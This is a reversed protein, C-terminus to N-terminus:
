VSVCQQEKFWNVTDILGEHLPVQPEWGLAYAKTTDVERHPIAIPREANYVIEAEHGAARLIMEAVDSVPYSAGYGINVVDVPFPSALMEVCGRALDTVHLFDRTEEGTGWVEFPDDEALAKRILSPIVHQSKDHRGYVATPRVRVIRMDSEAAVFDALKEFYRYMEGYGFYASHTPGDLAEDESMPHDGEPYVTSSSCLLVREVGQKWCAHLVRSTLAMNTAIASMMSVPSAGASGVAGAFHFVCDRDAVAEMCHDELTFDFLKHPAYSVRAGHRLLEQTVHQGCFGTGGTVLVKKNEYFSNM